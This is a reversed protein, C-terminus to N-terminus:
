GVCVGIYELGVIPALSATCQGQDCPPFHSDSNFDCLQKCTPGPGICVTGEVCQAHTGCPQGLGYPGEPACEFGNGTFMCGHSPALCRFPALPHCEHQTSVCEDCEADYGAATPDCEETLPDLLGDGCSPAAGTSTGEESSEDSGTITADPDGTEASGSELGGSTTTGTAGDTTTSEAAMADTDVSDSDTFCGAAFALLLLAWVRWRELSKAIDSQKWRM